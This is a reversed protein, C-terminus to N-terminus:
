TRCLQTLDHRILVSQWVRDVTHWVCGRVLTKDRRAYVWHRLSWVAVRGAIHFQRLNEPLAALRMM